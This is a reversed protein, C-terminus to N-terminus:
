LLALLDESVVGLKNKNDLLQEKRLRYYSQAKRGDVSTYSPAISPAELLSKNFPIMYWTKDSEPRKLYSFVSIETNSSTGPLRKKYLVAQFVQFGLQRLEDFLSVEGVNIGFCGERSENKFKIELVCLKGQSSKTFFDVNLIGQFYVSLIDDVFNREEAIRILNGRQSFFSICEDQRNADSTDRTARIVQQRQVLNYARIFQPLSLANGDKRFFWNGNDLEVAWCEYMQALRSQIEKDLETLSHKIAFFFRKGYLTGTWWGHTYCTRKPILFQQEFLYETVYGELLTHKDKRLQAIATTNDM